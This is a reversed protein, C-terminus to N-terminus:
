DVPPAPLPELVQQLVRDFVRARLKSGGFFSRLGADRDATGHNRFAVAPKWDPTADRLDLVQVEFRATTTLKAM